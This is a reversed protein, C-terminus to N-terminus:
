VKERLASYCVVFAVYECPQDTCENAIGCALLTRFEVVMM